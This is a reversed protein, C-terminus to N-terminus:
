PLKGSILNLYAKQFYKILTFLQSRLICRTINHGAICDKIFFLDKTDGLKMDVLPLVHNKNDYERNNQFKLEEEADMPEKKDNNYDLINVMSNRYDFIYGFYKFFYVLLDAIDRNDVVYQVEKSSNKFSQIDKYSPLLGKKQLVFIVMNTISYSSLTGQSADNINLVSAWNKCFIILVPLIPLLQCFEKVVGTNGSDKTLTIDCHFETKPDFFKVIPVKAHIIPKINYFGNARLISSFQYCWKTIDNRKTLETEFSMVIDVDSKKLALQTSSSGFIEVKIEGFKNLSTERKIVEELRKLIITRDRYCRVRESLKNIDVSLKRLIEGNLKYNKKTQTELLKVNEYFNEGELVRNDELYKLEKARKATDRQRQDVVPELDKKIKSPKKKNKLSTISKKVKKRENNINSHDDNDNDSNSKVVKHHKKTKKSKSKFRDIASETKVKTTSETKINITSETKVDVSRSHTARM